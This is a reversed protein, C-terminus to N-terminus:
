DTRAVLEARVVDCWNEISEMPDLWVDADETTRSPGHAIVAIGGLILVRQQAALREIIESAKDAM